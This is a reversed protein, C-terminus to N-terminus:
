PYRNQRQKWSKDIQIRRVTHYKKNNNKDLGLIYDINHKDIWQKSIQNKQPDYFANVTAPATDWRYILYVLM